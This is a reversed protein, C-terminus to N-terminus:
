RPRGGPDLSFGELLRHALAALALLPLLSASLAAAATPWSLEREFTFFDSMGVPITKIHGATLVLPVLLENWNLVFLIVATAALAPALLPLVVGVLIELPGAGDLRAAEELERPANALYGYLIYVALPAFVATQPLLVGLFTDDLHLRRMTEGLPIVYAMVPLSALILFAQAALRRGPQAASITHGSALSYAAPFAVAVALLTAGASLGASTALEQYFAPESVGVEAYSELSPPWTWRPPSVIDDPLLQLSALLTWALPMLFIATVGALVAGRLWARRQQQARWGSRLLTSM